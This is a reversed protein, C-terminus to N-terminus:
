AFEHPSGVKVEPTGLTLQSKLGDVFTKWSEVTYTDDNLRVTASSTYRGGETLRVGAYRLHSASVDDFPIADSLTEPQFISALAHQVWDVLPLSTTM